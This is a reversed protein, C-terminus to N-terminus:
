LVADMAAMMAADDSAVALGGSPRGTTGNMVSDTEDGEGAAAPPGVPAQSFGFSESGAAAAADSSAVGQSVGATAWNRVKRAVEPICYGDVLLLCCTISKDDQLIHMRWTQTMKCYPKIEEPFGPSPRDLVTKGDAQTVGITLSSQNPGAVEILKFRLRYKAAMPYKILVKKKTQKIPDVWRKEISARRAEPTWESPDNYEPDNKNIEFWHNFFWEKGAERFHKLWLAAREESLNIGYGRRGSFKRAGAGAGAGTFASASDMAPPADDEAGDSPGSSLGFKTVGQPEFVCLGEAIPYSETGSTSAQKRETFPNPMCHKEWDFATIDPVESM